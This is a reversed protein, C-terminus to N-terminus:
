QKFVIMNIELKEMLLTKTIKLIRGKIMILPLIIRYHDVDVIRFL